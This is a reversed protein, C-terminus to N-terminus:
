PNIFSESSRSDMIAGAQRGNIKVCSTSKDSSQANTAATLSAVASVEM